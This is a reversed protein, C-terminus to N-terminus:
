GKKEPLRLTGHLVAKRVTDAKLGLVAAVESRTRGADLLAQAQAVREATWVVARRPTPKRGAFFSEPGEARYQEVWRILSRKAVAFVRIIDVLRCSGQVCLQAVFMRFAPASGVPHQYVPLSGTFYVVMGDRQVVALEPTILTSEAPFVPALLQQGSCASAASSSSPPTPM